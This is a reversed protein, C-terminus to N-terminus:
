RFQRIKLENGRQTFEVDKLASMGLLISDNSQMAPNISARVDRLTIEGIELRDINTSFVTIVGNATSALGQRGRKLGLEKAIPEPIVVDTAGTDLLFTVTTDNIQGNMVYHNFRNRELIVENFTQTQSTQPKRNPNFQSEEWNGFGWTLLGLAIVWAIIFMGKGIPKTSNDDTTTLQEELGSPM